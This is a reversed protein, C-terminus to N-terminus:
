GCAEPGTREELPPESDGLCDSAKTHKHTHPHTERETNTVCVCVCVCVNNRVKRPLVDRRCPGHSRDPASFVHHQHHQATSGWAAFLTAYWSKAECAHGLFRM